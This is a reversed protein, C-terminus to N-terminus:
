LSNSMVSAVSCSLVIYLVDSMPLHKAPPIIIFVTKYLMYDLIFSRCMSGLMIRHSSKNNNRGLM